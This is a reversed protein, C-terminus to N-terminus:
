YARHETDMVQVTVGDVCERIAYALSAVNDAPYCGDLASAKDGPMTIVWRGLDCDVAEGRTGDSADVRASFIDGDRDAIPTLKIHM